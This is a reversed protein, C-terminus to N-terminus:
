LRALLDYIEQKSEPNQHSPCSTVVLKKIGNALKLETTFAVGEEVKIGADIFLKLPFLVEHQKEDILLVCKVTNENM